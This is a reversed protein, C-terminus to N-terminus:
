CGKTVVGQNEEPSGLRRGSKAYKAGPTASYGWNPDEVGRATTSPELLLMHSLGPWHSNISPLLPEREVLSAISHPYSIPARGAKKNRYPLLKDPIIHIYM